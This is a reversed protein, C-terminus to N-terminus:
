VIPKKKIMRIWLMWLLFVMGYIIGPFIVGHLISEYEPFKYLAVALIAIRIINVTYILISGALIFLLTKKIKQAFAIVFSIFLVIISMANCGEIINALYNGEVILKMQPKADHAVVQANCGTNNILWSSQTAVLNTIFDPTNSNHAAYKLYRGYLLSLLLYTGFFLAVFKIVPKYKTILKKM